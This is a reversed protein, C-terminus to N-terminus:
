STPTFTPTSRPASQNTASSTPSTTPTSASAAGTPRSRTGPSTPTGAAAPPTSAGSAPPTPAAPGGAAARQNAAAATRPSPRSLPTHPLPPRQANGVSGYLLYDDPDLGELIQADALRNQLRTVMPIERDKEGKGKIVRVVGGAPDCHRLQMNRLEDRRLGADFMLALPASDLAPLELLAGTEADSFIDYIQRPKRRPPEFYD